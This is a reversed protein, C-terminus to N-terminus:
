NLKGVANDFFIIGISEIISNAAKKHTRKARSIFENNNTEAAVDKIQNFGM